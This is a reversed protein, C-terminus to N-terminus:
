AVQLKTKREWDGVKELIEADLEPIGTGDTPVKCLGKHLEELWKQRDIQESYCWPNRAM